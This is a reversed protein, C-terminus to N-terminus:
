EEVAAREVDWIATQMYMNEDQGERSLNDIFGLVYARNVFLKGQYRIVPVVGARNLDIDVRHGDSYNLTAKMM